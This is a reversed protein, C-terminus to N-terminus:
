ADRLTTLNSNFSFCVFMCSSKKKKKKGLLSEACCWFVTYSTVTFGIVWNFYLWRAPHSFPPMLYESHRNQPVRHLGPEHVWTMQVYFVSRLPKNDPPPPTWTLFYEFFYYNCLLVSCRVPVLAWELPRRTFYTSIKKMTQPSRITQLVPFLFTLQLIWRLPQFVNGLM